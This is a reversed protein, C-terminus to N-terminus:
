KLKDNANIQRWRTLSLMVAGMEEHSLEMISYRCTSMKMQMRKGSSSKAGSRM